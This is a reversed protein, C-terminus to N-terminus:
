VTMLEKISQDLTTLEENISDDADRTRTATSAAEFSFGAQQLDKRRDVAESKAKM